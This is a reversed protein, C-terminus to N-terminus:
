VTEGIDAEIFHRKGTHSTVVLPHKMKRSMEGGIEVSECGAILEIIDERNWDAGVIMGPSPNLMVHITKGEGLLKLAAEKTLIEREESM